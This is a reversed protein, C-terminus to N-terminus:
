RPEVHLCLDESAIHGSLKWDVWVYSWLWLETYKSDTSSDKTSSYNQTLGWCISWQLTQSEVNKSHGPSSSVASSLVFCPEHWDLHFVVCHLFVQHECTECLSIWSEAFFSLLVQMATFCLALAKRGQLCPLLAISCEWRGLRLVTNWCVILTITLTKGFTLCKCLSDPDSMFCEPSSLILASVCWQM